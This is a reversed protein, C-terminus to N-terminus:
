GQSTNPTRPCTRRVPHRLDPGVQNSDTLLKKLDFYVETDGGTVFSVATGQLSRAPPYLQLLISPDLTRGRRNGSSSPIGGTEVCTRECSRAKDPTRVKKGARGTRGIRHTYAEITNPMDYNVVLAVDQVDIGRGAVDTAVLVNYKGSKFGELSVKVCLACWQRSVRM